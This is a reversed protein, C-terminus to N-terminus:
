AAVGADSMGCPCEYVRLAVGDDYVMEVLRLDHVHAPEEAIAVGAM